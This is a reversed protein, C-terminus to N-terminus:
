GDTTSINMHRPHTTTIRVDATDTYFDEGYLEQMKADYTDPDFDGDLELENLPIDVSGSIDKITKLRNRIEQM